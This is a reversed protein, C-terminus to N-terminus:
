SYSLRAAYRLLLILPPRPRESNEAAQLNTAITVRSRRENKGEGGCVPSRWATPNLTWGREGTTRHAHTPSGASGAQGEGHM